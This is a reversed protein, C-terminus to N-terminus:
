PAVQNKDFSKKSIIPAVPPKEANDATVYRKPKKVSKRNIDNVLEDLMEAKEMKLNQDSSSDSRLDYAEVM